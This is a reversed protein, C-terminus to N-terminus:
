ASETKSYPRARQPLRGTRLSIKRCCSYENSLSSPTEILGRTGVKANDVGFLTSTALYTKVM